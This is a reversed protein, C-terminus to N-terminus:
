IGARANLAVTAFGRQHVPEQDFREIQLPTANGVVAIALHREDFSGQRRFDDTGRDVPSLIVPFLTRQRLNM